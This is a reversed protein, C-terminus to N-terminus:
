SREYSGQPEQAPPFAQSTIHAWKESPSFQAGVGLSSTEDRQTPVTEESQLNSDQYLWRHLLCRLELGPCGRILEREGCAPQTGLLRTDDRM